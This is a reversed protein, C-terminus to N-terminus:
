IIKKEGTDDDGIDEEMLRKRANMYYKLMDLNEQHEDVDIFNMENKKKRLESIKLTYTDMMKNKYLAHERKERLSEIKLKAEDIKLKKEARASEKDMRENEKSILSNRQQKSLNSSNLRALTLTTTIPSNLDIGSSHLQLQQQQQLQEQLLQQQQLQEQQQLQQQEQQHQRLQENMAIPNKNFSTPSGAIGPINSDKGKKLLLNHNPIQSIKATDNGTENDNRTLAFSADNGVDVSTIIHNGGGVEIEGEDGGREGGRGGGKGMGDNGNDANVKRKNWHDYICRFMDYKSNQFKKRGKIELIGMIKKLKQVKIVQIDLGFLTTAERKEHNVGVDDWTAQQFKDDPIFNIGGRCNLIISCSQQTRLDLMNTHNSNNGIADNNNPDYMICVHEPNIATNINGVATVEAEATTHTNNSPITAITNYDRHHITAVPINNIENKNYDNAHVNNEDHQQQQQQQIIIQQKTNVIAEAVTSTAATVANTTTPALVYDTLSNHNSAITCTGTTTTTSSSGGSSTTADTSNSYHPPLSSLTM